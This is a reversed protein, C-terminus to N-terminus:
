EGVELTGDQGLTFIKEGKKNYFILQDKKKVVKFDEGFDEGLEFGGKSGKRWDWFLSLAKGVVVVGGGLLM